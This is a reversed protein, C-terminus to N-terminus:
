EQIEEQLDVVIETLMDEFIANKYERSTGNINSRALFMTGSKLIEIYCLPGEALHIWGTEVALKASHHGGTNLRQAVALHPLLAPGPQPSTARPTRM